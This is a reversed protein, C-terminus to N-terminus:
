KPRAAFTASFLALMIASLAAMLWNGLAPGSGTLASLLMVLTQLSLYLIEGRVIYDVMDWRKARMGYFSTLGGFGFIVAGFGRLPAEIGSVSPYGLWGGFTVPILLLGLGIVIAVVLHVTFTVRGIYPVTSTERM